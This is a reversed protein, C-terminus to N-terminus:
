IQKTRFNSIGLHLELGWSCTDNDTLPDTRWVTIVIRMEMMVIMRIMIRERSERLVTMVREEMVRTVRMSLIVAITTKEWHVFFIM